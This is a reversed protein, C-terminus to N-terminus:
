HDDLDDNEVNDSDDDSQEAEPLREVHQKKVRLARRGDRDRAGSFWKALALEVDKKSATSTRPNKKVGGSWLNFM